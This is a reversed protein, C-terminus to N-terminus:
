GPLGGGRAIKKARQQRRNHNARSAKNEEKRQRSAASGPDGSPGSGAGRGGGGGGRRGGRGRGRPASRGRSGPYAPGSDEEEEAEAPKRYSTPPLDPQNLAGAGGASGGASLAFNHELRSLRKPDRNVMVAWGEIAEDTMGTERKISARPQSRRTASDRAFLAPNGKYARFLTMDMDETQISKRNSEAEADTSSPVASDITGGVDAVDYTDDREDDDSDFTALASLIAAKNTAHQSRDALITDATNTDSRGFLLKGHTQNTSDSAALEALDIDQDFVNKRTPTQAEPEPAPAPSPIEPPTSHPPFPDHSPATHTTPLQESRDITKLEPALSDDLLHAVVTETNDSYHDLLRVIYGSGLDPFLDQVQTVLSLKHAHLGEAGSTYARGKGKNSKKHQKQYRHHFVQSEGQYSRLGVTLDQGRKQPHVNLYRELRSLLDSSCVLDSLLTPEKRTSASGVGASAKLSFLHDLLLSLNPTPGKLLSIFSVYACAVIVKRLSERGKTQYADFLVDLFDSGTMLVQGCGPLVSALVTLMRINIAIDKNESPNGFSLSKIMTSKGTNLGDTIKVHHRQWAGSLVTKLASSSPYCLCMSGLSKWELMIGLPGPHELLIRRTFLFCLKRLHKMRPGSQLKSEPYVALQLHFTFLFAHASGDEFSLTAFEQSPLEVYAGVLAIWAEVCANWDEPSLTSQVELRPVPVLPPLNAM